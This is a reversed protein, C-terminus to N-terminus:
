GRLKRQILEQVLQPNAKGRTAKMVAGVIRGAAKDKGAAFERAASENEAIARDVEAELANSDSIQVLGKEEVIKSPEKGTALMEEFVTKAIKSSITGDEILGLMEALHHPAILLEGIEIGRENLVGLINTTVWNSVAKPKAGLGVCEEFFEAHARDAVLVGADYDSVKYEEVFRKRKALPLEPLSSRIEELWERSLELPVLDPEPFYRYDQAFEKTRM